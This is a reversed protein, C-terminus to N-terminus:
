IRGSWVAGRRRRRRRRRRPAASVCQTLQALLRADLWCPPTSYPVRIARCYFDLHFYMIFTCEHDRNTSNISRDEFNVRARCNYFTYACELNTTRAMDKSSSSPARWSSYSDLAEGEMVNGGREEGKGGGKRVNEEGQSGTKAERARVKPPPWVPPSRAM